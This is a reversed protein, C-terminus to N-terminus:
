LVNILYMIWAVFFTIIVPYALFFFIWARKNNRKQVLNLAFNMRKPEIKSPSPKYSYEKRLTKFLNKGRLMSNNFHMTKASDAALGM